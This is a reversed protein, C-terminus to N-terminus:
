AKVILVSNKSKWAIFSIEIANISIELIGLKELKLGNLLIKHLIDEEECKLNTWYM